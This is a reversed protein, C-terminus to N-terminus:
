AFVESTYIVQIGTECKVNELHKHEMVQPGSEPVALHKPFKVM